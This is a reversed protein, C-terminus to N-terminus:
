RAWFRTEVDGRKPGGPGYGNDNLMSRSEMERGRFVQGWKPRRPYDECLQTYAAQMDAIVAPLDADRLGEGSLVVHPAQEQYGVAVLMWQWTPQVETARRTEVLYGEPSSAYIAGRKWHEWSFGLDLAANYVRKNIPHPLRLTSGPGWNFDRWRENLMVNAKTGARTLLTVPTGMDQLKQDLFTQIELAQEHSVGWGYGM